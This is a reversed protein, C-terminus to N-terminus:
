HPAKMGVCQGNYTPQTSGRRQAPACGIFCNTIGSSLDRCDPCVATFRSDYIDVFHNCQANSFSRYRILVSSVPPPLISVAPLSLCTHTCYIVAARAANTRNDRICLLRQPWLKM